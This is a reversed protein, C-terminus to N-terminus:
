AGPTKARIDAEVLARLEDTVVPMASFWRTFGPVAQHLLMGLGDVVRHGRAAAQQLLPTYLPVYVIDYVVARQPLPALDIELLPKGLMGLATTNVLLGAEAMLEPLDVRAHTTVGAGFHEALAQANERTRNVLHVHMGRGLLGYAAARAAGGAGLVVASRSGADWGPALHDLNAIFGGVDTNGGVLDGDETWITNVAGIARATADIRALFPVVAVKHPVTVNGGTFGNRQWDAFFGPLADPAVDALGYSGPLGLTRLWYGHLMPSRSHGVPYGLIFARPATM